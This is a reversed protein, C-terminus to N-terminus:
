VVRVGGSVLALVEETLEDEKVQGDSKYWGTIGNLSDFLLIALITSNCN